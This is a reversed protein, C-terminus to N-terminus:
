SSNMVHTNMDVQTWCFASGPMPHAVPEQMTETGSLIRGPAYWHRISRVNPICCIPSISLHGTKVTVLGTWFFPFGYWGAM